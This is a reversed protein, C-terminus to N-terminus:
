FLLPDTCIVVIKGNIDPLHEEIKSITGINPTNFILLIANKIGSIAM